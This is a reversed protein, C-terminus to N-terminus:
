LLIIYLKFTVSFGDFNYITSNTLTTAWTVKTQNSNSDYEFLSNKIVSTNLYAESKDTSQSCGSLFGISFLLTLFLILVFSCRKALSKYM